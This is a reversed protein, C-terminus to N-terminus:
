RGSSRAPRGSGAGRAAVRRWRRRRRGPPGRPAAPRRAPRVAAGSPGSGPRRPRAPSSRPAARARRRPLVALPEHPRARLHESRDDVRAVQDPAVVAAQGRDARPPQPDRQARGQGAAEALRDAVVRDGVVEADVPLPRLGERPRPRPVDTPALEDVGPRVVPPAGQELCAGGLPGGGGAQGVFPPPSRCRWRDFGPQGPVDYDIGKRPRYDLFDDGHGGILHDLFRDTPGRDSRDDPNGWGGWLADHGDGGFLIDGGADGNLRDNGPGGHIADHDPGGRMLDAGGPAMIGGAMMPEIVHHLRGTVFKQYTLFPPANFTLTGTPFRADGGHLHFRRISGRDGLMGDDGHGGFMHDDGVGGWMLDDDDNGWMEDDGDQGYMVDDGTGGDMFDDGWPADIDRPGYTLSIGDDHLLVDRLIARDEVAVSAAYWEDQRTYVTGTIGRPVDANDGTMADHDGDGWLLDHGDPIGPRRSGGLMDDQGDVQGVTTAGHAGLGELQRLAAAVVTGEDDLRRPLDYGPLAADLDRISPPVVLVDAPDDGSGFRQRVKAVWGIDSLFRDGFMGDDASNGELYDAGPGGSIWDDGHQGFAVDDETGGSVRDGGFRRDDHDGIDLLIVWRDQMFGLFRGQTALYVDAEGAPPARLIVANDGALVDQDAGGYLLDDGDDDGTCALAGLACSSGGILDDDGDNGELWDNGQNGELLDDGDNGRLLDDGGQGFLRDNGADGILIDNGSVEDLGVIGGETSPPRTRDYMAVVRAFGGTVSDIAWADGGDTTQRTVLANDGLIVDQQANGRLLDGEDPAGIDAKAVNPHVDSSGGIIVDQDSAGGALLLLERTKAESDAEAEIANSLGYVEDAGGNGELHDDGVGGEVLDDGAGGYAHDDGTDGRVHDEGGLEPAILTADYRPAGGPWHTPGPGVSAAPFTHAHWAPRQAPAWGGNPLAIRALDGFVHDHGGQGDVEDDGLQGLIVDDDPGGFLQDNGHLDAPPWSEPPDVGLTGAWYRWAGNAEIHVNDGFMLDQGADGFLVDDGAAKDIGGVASARQPHPRDSSGGLMTDDGAGGSMTDDGQNGEMWDVGLGGSMTDDGAGGYMEDDGSDGYMTDDGDGGFMRDDGPGGRMTDDGLNGELLDDGDGGDLHDGGDVGFLRDDSTGGIICDGDGSGISAMGDVRGSDFPQAATAPEIVGNRDLDFRGGLVVEDAVLGNDAGTILGDGDVDLQGGIVRYGHFRGNDNTANRDGNLDLRGAIVVVFPACASTTGVNGDEKLSVADDLMPWPDGPKLRGADTGAVDDGILLDGAGDRGDAGLLQDAGTGGLMVHRGGEAVLLDDGPGGHLRDDDRGAFLQDNGTGGWLEDNGRGGQLIDNGAQGCLLDNGRGGELIDDGPGGYLRDNGDHGALTDDGTAGDFFQCMAHRDMSDRADLWNRAAAMATRGAPSDLDLSDLDNISLPVGTVGLPVDDGFLHDIGPGGQVTDDGAGGILVNGLDLLHSGDAPATKLGPGGDVTDDGSGGHLLDAGASGILRDNGDGGYLLDDGTGGDLVDDEGRGFLADDGKGGRLTDKGSGGVLVDDGDGGEFRNRGSSAELFADVTFPIEESGDETAGPLLRVTDNGDLMRGVLRGDKPVTYPLPVGNFTIEVDTGGGTGAGEATVQRVVFKENKESTFVNRLNADPGANLVLDGGVPRAWVPAPPDCSIEFLKLPPKLQWLIQTFKVKTIFLNIEFFLQLIFELTGTVDFLCIPNNLHQLVEEVYLKGNGDPDNLNLAITVIVVAELGVKIIKLSASAGASVKVILKIEDVDKGAADLDDLFLGDLLYSANIPDDGRIARTLGRTDYGLAMRGQLTVSGGLNVEMPVPGAMFPGFSISMGATATLTGADFRVLTADVGVFLGYIQNVDDLFPFTVGAGSIGVAANTKRTVKGNESKGISDYKASGSGGSWSADKKTCSTKGEPIECPPKKAKEASVKFGGRKQDKQADSGGSEQNGPSFNEGDSLRILLEQEDPLNAAFKLLELVRGILTLDNSSVANLLDFFTVPGRGVAQSLESVIPVSALTIDVVPKIPKLFAQIDDLVPGLTREIFTGLDLVLDSYRPDSWPQNAPRSSDYDVHFIMLLAPLGIDELDHMKFLLDVNGVADLSRTADVGDILDAFGIPEAPLSAKTLLDVKTRDGGDADFLTGPLLGVFADFCRDSVFSIEGTQNPNVSSSEECSTTAALEASAALRLDDGTAGVLYPGLDRSLGFAVDLSWGVRSTVPTDDEEVEFPLGPLGLDFELGGIGAGGCGDAETCGRAAPPASVDTDIRFSVTVDEVHEPGDDDPHCSGGDGACTVAVTPVLGDLRDDDVESTFYSTVVEQIRDDISTGGGPVFSELADDLYSGLGTLEGTLAFLDFELDAGGDLRSGLLPISEDAAMGDVADGMAFAVFPLGAPLLSWDLPTIALADLLPEPVDVPDTSAISFAGPDDWALQAALTGLYDSTEGEAPISALSLRACADGEIGAGCDNPTELGEWAWAAGAVFDPVLAGSTGALVGTGDLKLTGLGGLKYTDGDKWRQGNSLGDCFLASGDGADGVATVTCSGVENGSPNLKAVTDGVNVGIAAFDVTPDYLRTTNPPDDHTGTITVTHVTFADGDTWTIADDVCTAQDPDEPNATVSAVVCATGAGTAVLLDGPSVLSLDAATVLTTGAAIANGSALTAMPHIVFADEHEWEVADGSVDKLGDDCTAEGAGDDVATVTCSAARTVNRLVMGVSVGSLDAATKLTTTNAPDGSHQGLKSAGSGVRVTMAGVDALLDIGTDSATVSAGSIGTGELAITAGAPVGAALPIGLELGATSAHEVAIMPDSSDDPQTLALTDTLRIRLPADATGSAALGQVSLVLHQTPGGAAPNDHEALSVTVPRGVADTLMDLLEPLTAAPNPVPEDHGDIPEHTAITDAVEGVAAVVETFQPALLDRWAVLETGGQPRALRGVLPLVPDEALALGGALELLADLILGRLADLDGRVEYRDGPAWSWTPLPDGEELASLDGGALPEDCRLTTASVITFAGCMTGQTTNYLPAPIPTGIASPDLGFAALLDADADVMAETAPAGSATVVGTVTAQIDFPRLTTDYDEDGVVAPFPDGSVDAWTVELIGTAPPTTATVDLAMRAQLDTSASFADLTAVLDSVGVRGPALTVELAPSGSSITFDVTSATVPLYGVRGAFTAVATADISGISLIASGDGDLVFRDQLTFAQDPDELAQADDLEGLIIGFTTALQGDTMTVEAKQTAPDAVVEALSARPRLSDAIDYPYSAKVETTSHEVAYTITLEIADYDLAVDFGEAVLQERLEQATTFRPVAKLSVPAEDELQIPTFTVEVDLPLTIGTLRVNTTPALGGTGVADGNAAVTAGTAAWDIATVDASTFAQCYATGGPRLEGAPPITDAAGCVILANGRLEVFEFLAAGPDYLDSVQDDLFPLRVDALGMATRLAVATQGLGLLADDANVTGFPELAPTPTFETAPYTAAGTVAGKSTLTGDVDGTLLDSDLTLDVDVAGGTFAPAVLDSALTTAIEEITVRGSGDPDVVPISIEIGDYSAAGTVDVATFGYRGEFDIDDAAAVTVVMQPDGASPAEVSFGYTTAPVADTPTETGRFVFEASFGADIAVVGNTLDLPSGPNDPDDPDEPIGELYTLPVDATRTLEVELTVDIHRADGPVVTETASFTATGQVGGVAIEVAHGDLTALDTIPGLGGLLQASLIGADLGLLRAPSTATAPLPEALPAVDGLGDLTVLFAQIGLSTKVVLEDPDAAAVPVATTAVLSLLVTGTIARRTRSTLSSPTTWPAM